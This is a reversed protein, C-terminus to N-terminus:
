HEVDEAAVFMSLNERVRGIMREERYKENEWACYESRGGQATAQAWLAPYSAPHSGVSGVHTQVFVANM